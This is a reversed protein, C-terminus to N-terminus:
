RIVNVPVVKRVREGDTTEALIEVKYQGPAVARNANDRLSWIVQNEGANDARGRTVTFVEKGSGSLVRVSVLADASLAYSITMAGVSRDAGQGVIVNGIVPRVSGGQELTVTFERSGVGSMFYTYGSVSRLDRVEGTALDTIKARVNRPVSALNPWTLTVDGAEHSNVYVKFETKTKKTTLAQAVRTLQGNVTGEIAVDVKGDMAPPPEPLVFRNVLTPDAVYGIYNDTDAGTATRASLQVRWQRDSQRWQTEDARGSPNLGAILIPPWSLRVPNFTNVYIWYGKHPELKTSQSLTFKYSGVGAGSTGRDWHALASSVFGNSVLEAWTYSDAPADDVVAVLDSLPVAYNYPNGIMNWGSRLTYLLGGTRTDANVTASNLAVFGQDSTPVFWIGESRNAVSAQLYARQGPDWKFARYDIEPVLGTVAELSNDTFNYPFTVMQAGSALRVIPTAAVRIVTSLTKQGGVTPIFTISIPLEGFTVGDSEIQWDVLGIGRPQVAGITKEATQGPALSLGPPLTLVFRVGPITIEQDLKAYQNDIYARVTMPNPSLGDQGSTDANVLKPADVVAAYPDNFDSVGWNSKFVQIIRRLQGAQVTQVPYRQAISHEFMYIDAEEQTGTPDGFVNFSLNNGFITNGYGGVNILDATSAGIFLNSNLPDPSLKRMTLDPVNQIHLGYAETQGHLFQVYDPFRSSTRAFRHPNRIPRTTPTVFYGTFNDITFKASGFNGQRAFFSQNTFTQSDLNGNSTMQAGWLGMM